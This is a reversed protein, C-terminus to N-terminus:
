NDATAATAGQFGAISGGDAVLATGTVFRALDSALFLAADAIEAPQATRRLPTVAQRRQEFPTGVVPVDLMTLATATFGPHLSNVRVGDPGYRMALSASLTTVAGKTASYLPDFTARVGAISSVNVIAGGGGDLMLRIQSQCGHVVGMLNIGVIPAMAEDDLALFDGPEAIGAVNFGAGLVGFRQTARVVAEVQAADRVDCAVFASECETDRAILEHVPEGGERPAAQLDGVVVAAAGQRACGLAIARGIGGAGGLVVAVKGAMLGGSM